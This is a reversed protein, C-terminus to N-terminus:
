RQRFRFVRCRDVSASTSPTCDFGQAAMRRSLEGSRHRGPDVIMVDAGPNTHAHLFTALQEPHGREYLIDSGIVLDFRGLTPNPESWSIDLFPLPRMANLELNRLLFREGLPHHDSVTIDLDRGHAVIGALALGCGVELVRRDSADVDVMAEALVIGAPWLTGFFSWAAEPIGRRLADGDPDFFQQRDLLSEIEYDRAGVSVVQQKVEYGLM